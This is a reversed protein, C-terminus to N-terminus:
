IHFPIYKEINENNKIKERIMSSSINCLPMNVFKLKHYYPLYKWNNKNDVKRQIVVFDILELLKQYDKWEQLKVVNDAGIVFSFDDNPFMTKINNILMITYSKENPSIDKEYVEFDPTDKTATKLFKIRDDFTFLCKEKHPPIAAPIFWIKDFHLKKKITNAVKIHGLHVPDFSGGFLAIKM